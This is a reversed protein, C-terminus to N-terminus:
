TRSCYKCKLNQEGDLQRTSTTLNITALQLYPFICLVARKSNFATVIIAIAIPTIWSVDQGHYVLRSGDALKKGELRAVRLDYPRAM